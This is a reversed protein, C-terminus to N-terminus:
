PTRFGCNRAPAPRCCGRCLLAFLGVLVCGVLNYWFTDMTLWAPAFGKANAIHIAVVVGEALLAGLFVANGQVRRLYFAVLFIGLITGYFLSGLLNVAQILNEFLSAWTAFLIAFM